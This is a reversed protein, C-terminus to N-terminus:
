AGNRRYHTVRRHCNACRLECKEIEAWIAAMSAGGRVASGINFQKDGVIHDFDLVIPDSEGCDVCPHTAKYEWIEDFRKQGWAKTTAAKQAKRESTANAHRERDYSRRCDRCWPFNNPFDDKYTDCKPCLKM